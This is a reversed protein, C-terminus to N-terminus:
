KKIPRALVMEGGELAPYFANAVTSENVKDGGGGQEIIKTSRGKWDELLIATHGNNSVGSGVNVIVVDGAKADSSKVEKLYKHSGKADQAMTMTYWGMNAPVNYGAKNLALWVFGSCDTGGSKSPHKLDSGLDSSPHSQVYYFWGKM